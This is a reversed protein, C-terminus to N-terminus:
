GRSNLCPWDTGIVPGHTFRTRPRQTKSRPWLGGVAEWNRKSRQHPRDTLITNQWPVLPGDQGLALMPVGKDWDGKVLCFYKGMALNAEPDDPTKELTAKAAKATEFAKTIEAVEIIRGQAQAILEKERAKRAEVLALKDLQEAVAFNDKGVAQDM